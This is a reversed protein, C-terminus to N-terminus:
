VILAHAALGGFFSVDIVANFANKGAKFEASAVALFLSLEARGLLKNQSIQDQPAVRLRWGDRDHTGIVDGEM